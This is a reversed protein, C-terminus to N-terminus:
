IQWLSFLGGKGAAHELVVWVSFVSRRARSVARPKLVKFPQGRTIGHAALTFFDEPKIDVGGHFLEYLFIM